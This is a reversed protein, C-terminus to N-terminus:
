GRSPWRQFYNMVILSEVLSLATIGASSWHSRLRVQPANSSKRETQGPGGPTEEGETNTVCVFVGPKQAGVRVSTTHLHSLIDAPNVLFDRLCSIATSALIPHKEALSGLGDLCVM